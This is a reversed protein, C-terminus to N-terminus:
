LAPSLNRCPLLLGRQCATGVGGPIGRHLLALVPVLNLGQGWWKAALMVKLLNDLRQKDPCHCHKNCLDITPSKTYHGLYQAWRKPLVRNNNHSSKSHHASEAQGQSANTHKVTVGLFSPKM